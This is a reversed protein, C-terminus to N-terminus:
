LLVRATFALVWIVIALLVGRRAISAGERGRIHAVLSWVVTVIWVVAPAIVCGYVVLDRHLDMAAHM